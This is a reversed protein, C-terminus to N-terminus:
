SSKSRSSRTAFNLSLNFSTPFTPSFLGLGFGKHNYLPPSSYILPILDALCHRFFQPHLNTGYYLVCHGFYDCLFLFSHLSTFHNDSCAKCIDSFLLSLCPLFPFICGVSHLTESFLLSLYSLRRLHVICLFLPFCCFPFSLFRKLFVSYILSCKM